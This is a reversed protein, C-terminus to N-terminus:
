GLQKLGLWWSLRFYHKEFFILDFFKVNSLDIAV